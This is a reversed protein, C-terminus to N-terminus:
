SSIYWAEGQGKGESDVRLRILQLGEPDQAPPEVSLIYAPYGGGLQHHTMTLIRAATGNVWIFLDEKDLRPPIEVDVRAPIFFLHWLGASFWAQLDYVEFDGVRIEPLQLDRDLGPCVIWGELTSRAYSRDGVFVQWLRGAPCFLRFGGDHDARTIIEHQRRKGRDLRTAWAFAELPQGAFSLARGELLYTQLPLEKKLHLNPGEVEVRANELCVNALHRDLFYVSERPGEAGVKELASHARTELKVDYEGPPLGELEVEVFPENVMPYQAGWPNILPEERLVPNRNHFAKIVVGDTM